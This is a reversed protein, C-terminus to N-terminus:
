NGSRASLLRDARPGLVAPLEGISEVFLDCALTRPDVGENYGYPVCVVAALGAARAALVDIQSDGVMLARAPPVELLECARLLPQPHPKRPMGGDGGVVSAIWQDLNLRALLEVAMSRPKNTVVALKRGLIHLEALGRAVGPYVRTQIDGHHHLREYHHHFRALLRTADAAIGPAGCRELVREVLAPVGRGILQSVESRALSPLGLEALARNLARTIDAATDLLTGDLDFLVAHVFSWQSRAGRAPATRDHM